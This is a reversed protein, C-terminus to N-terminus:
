ASMKMHMLGLAGLGKQAGRPPLRPSFDGHMEVKIKVVSRRFLDQRRGREPLAAPCLGVQISPTASDRPAVSAMTEIHSISPFDGGGVAPPLKFVCAGPSGNNIASLLSPHNELGGPAHPALSQRTEKGEKDRQRQCRTKRRRQVFPQM